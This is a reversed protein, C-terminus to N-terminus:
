RTRYARRSRATLGARKMKVDVRHVSGAAGEAAITLTYMAHLDAMFRAFSLGAPPLETTPTPDAPLIMGGTARAIEQLALGPRIRAATTESQRIVLPLAESLVHVVIGSGAARDRIDLLSARNGTGRGDTVLIVARLGPEPELADLARDMADWIPSPGYREQERFSLAARGGAIIDRPNATFAPALTLRGAIGGIRMRDHPGLVPVVSKGIEDDVRGYAKMSSSKDLLMVVTLPSPPPTVGAITVPRGDIAVEFDERTLTGNLPGDVAVHLSVQGAASQAPENAALALCCLAPAAVRAIAATM